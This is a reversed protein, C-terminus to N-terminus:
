INREITHKSSNGVNNFILYLYKEKLRFIDILQISTFVSMDQYISSEIVSNLKFYKIFLFCEPLHFKKHILYMFGHIVCRLLYTKPFRSVTVTASTFMGVINAKKLNNSM